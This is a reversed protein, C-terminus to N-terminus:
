RCAKDKAPPKGLKLEGAPAPVSQDQGDTKLDIRGAEREAPREVDAIWDGGQAPDRVTRSNLPGVNRLRDAARGATCPKGDSNRLVTLGDTLPDVQGNTDVQAVAAAPAVTLAIAFILHRM